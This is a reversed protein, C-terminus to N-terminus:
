RISDESIDLQGNDDFFFYEAVNRPQWKRKARKFKSPSKSKGSTASGDETAATGEEPQDVIKKEVLIGNELYAHTQKEEEEDSDGHLKVMTSGQLSSSFKFDIVSSHLTVM